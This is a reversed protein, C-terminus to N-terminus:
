YVMDINVFSIGYEPVFGCSNTVEKHIRAAEELASKEDPFIPKKPWMMRANKIRISDDRTYNSIENDWSVTEVAQLHAVRYESGMTVLIYIGNDSSM